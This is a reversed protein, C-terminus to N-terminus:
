RVVVIDGAKLHFVQQDGDASVFKEYNFPFTRLTEGDMRLVVIRSRSAYESFGGAQALVDIVTAQSKLEYRGPTRVEGIVSVKFSHVERVIVSVQPTAVYKRLREALADQLQM